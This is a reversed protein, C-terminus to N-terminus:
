RMVKLFLIFLKVRASFNDLSKISKGGSFHSRTQSLQDRPHQEHGEAAHGAGFGEVVMVPLGNFVDDTRKVADGHRVVGEGVSDQFRKVFAVVVAGDAVERDGLHYERGKRVKDGVIGFKEKM